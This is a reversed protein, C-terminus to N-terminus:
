ATSHPHAPPDALVDPVELFIVFPGDEKNLSLKQDSYFWLPSTEAVKACPMQAPCRAPLAWALPAQAPQARALLAHAPLAQALAVGAASTGVGTAAFLGCGSGPEERATEGDASGM